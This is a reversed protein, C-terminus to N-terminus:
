KSEPQKKRQHVLADLKKLFENEMQLQMNEASLRANDIELQEIKTKVEEPKIPKKKLM